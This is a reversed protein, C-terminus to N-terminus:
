RPKTRLWPAFVVCASATFILAFGVIDATSPREGLVLVTAVVGIVPTALTGLSATVASVRRVVGFWLAYALANGAIGSFAVALLAGTHAGSLNLRGEFILTASAILVFAITIQWSAFGMPDASVRARKLYVTGAAWSLGSGVALLVGLPIGTRALPSILVALWWACASRQSICARRDCFSRSCSRLSPGLALVTKKVDVTGPSPEPALRDHADKHKRQDRDRSAAARWELAIVRVDNTGMFIRSRCATGDTARDDIWYAVGSM